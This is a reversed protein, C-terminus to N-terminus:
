PALVCPRCVCSVADPRRHVGLQTGQGVVQCQQRSILPGRRRQAVPPVDVIDEGVQDAVGRRGPDHGAMDSSSAAEPRLAASAWIDPGPTLVTASRPQLLAVRSYGALRDYRISGDLERQV